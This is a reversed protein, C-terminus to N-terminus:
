STREKRKLICFLAVLGSGLLFVGSPEPASVIPTLYTNGSGTTYTAGPTLSDIFFVSSPPDVSATSASFDSNFGSAGAEAMLQGEIQLDAGVTTAEVFTQTGKLVSNCTQSSFTISNDGAGFSASDSVSSGMGTCSLTGNVTLTFLLDVPTGAALTASTVVLSDQWIGFFNGVGNSPGVTSSFDGAGSATGTISGFEVSGGVSGFGSGSIATLTPVTISLVLNQSFQHDVCPSVNPLCAEAATGVSLGVQDAQLQRSTLGMAACTCIAIAVFRSSLQFKM